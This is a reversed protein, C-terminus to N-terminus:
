KKYYLYNQYGIGISDKHIFACKHLHQWYLSDIHDRQEICQQIQELKQMQEEHNLENQVIVISIWAIILFFMLTKM